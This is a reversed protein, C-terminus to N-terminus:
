TDCLINLAEFMRQETAPASFIIPDKITVLFILGVAKYFGRQCCGFCVDFKNTYFYNSNSIQLATDLIEDLDDFIVVIEYPRLSMFNMTIKRIDAVIGM